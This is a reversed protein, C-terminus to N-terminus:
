KETSKESKTEPQSASSRPQTRARPIPYESTYARGTDWRGFFLLPIRLARCFRGPPRRMSLGLGGRLSKVLSIPKSKRGRCPPCRAPLLLVRAPLLPVLVLVVRRCSSDHAPPNHDASKKLALGRR